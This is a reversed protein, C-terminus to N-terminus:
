ETFLTGENEPKLHCEAQNVGRFNLQYIRNLNIRNLGVEKWSKMQYTIDVRLNWAFPKQNNKFFTVPYTPFEQKKLWERLFGTSRYGPFNINYLKQLEDHSSIHVKQSKTVRQLIGLPKYCLQLTFLLPYIAPYTMLKAIHACCLGLTGRSIMAIIDFPQKQCIEFIVM